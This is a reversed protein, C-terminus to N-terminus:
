PGSQFRSGFVAEARGQRIPDLLTPLDCPDYELDADQIVIVDGTAAQIGARVAAGKGSNKPQHIVRQIVGERHLRDLIAGTGDRSGDNVAVLEVRLPVEEFRRVSREITAEENYAPM